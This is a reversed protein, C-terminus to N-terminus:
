AKNAPPVLPPPIFVQPGLGQSVERYGRYGRAKHNPESYDLNWGRMVAERLLHHAWSLSPDGRQGGM